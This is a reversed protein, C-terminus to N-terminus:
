APGNPKEQPPTAMQMPDRTTVRGYAAAGFCFLVVGHTAWDPLYARLDAPFALLALQVAAGLAIFQVSAWKWASKWNWILKHKWGFM